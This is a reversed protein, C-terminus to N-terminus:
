VADLKLAGLVEETFIRDLNDWDAGKPIYIVVRIDIPRNTRKDFWLEAPAQKEVDTSLNLDAFFLELAELINSKGSGNRGILIVLDGLGQLKIHRLSRFNRIEIEAIIVLCEEPSFTVFVIGFFDTVSSSTNGSEGGGYWCEM